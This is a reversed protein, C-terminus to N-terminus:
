VLISKIKEKLQIFIELKTLNTDIPIGFIIFKDIIKIKKMLKLMYGLDMDHMTYINKSIVIQDIDDILTVNKIKEVTDIIYIIPGENQIEEISDFEKFEIDPFEKELNPILELPLSDKKVLKNGFILIKVPIM